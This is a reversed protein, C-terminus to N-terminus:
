QACPPEPVAFVASAAIWARDVVEIAAVAVAAVILRGLEAALRAEAELERLLARVVGLEVRQVAVGSVLLAAVVRVLEHEVAVPVVRGVDPALDRLVQDLRRAPQRGPDLVCPQAHVALIEPHVADFLRQGVVPSVAETPADALVQVVRAGM